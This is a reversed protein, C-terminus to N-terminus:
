GVKKVEVFMDNNSSGLVKISYGKHTLTDGVKLANDTFWVDTSTPKRIMQMPGYGSSISTDVFYAIVGRAGETLGKDFGLAARNEIVIAYSKSIPIVLGKVEANVLQLPKLLTVTTADPLCLIQKDSILGGIWRNWATLELGAGGAWNMLDYVGMYKFQQAFGDRGLMAADYNYLDALGL